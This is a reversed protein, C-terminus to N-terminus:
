SIFHQLAFRIMREVEKNNGKKWSYMQHSLNNISYLVVKMVIIDTRM